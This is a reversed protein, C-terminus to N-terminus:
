DRPVQILTGDVDLAFASREGRAHLAIWPSSEGGHPAWESLRTGGADSAALRLYRREGSVLRQVEIVAGEALSARWVAAIGDGRVPPLVVERVADGAAVNGDVVDQTSISPMVVAVSRPPAPAFTAPVAAGLKAHSGTQALASQAGAVLSLVLLIHPLRHM